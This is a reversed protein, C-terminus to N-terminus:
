FSKEIAPSAAFVSVAPKQVPIEGDQQLESPYFIYRIVEAIDDVAIVEVGINEFTEQWNEKPILVKNIGAQRAAEVKAAVGGVTKVKGRISIEGTLAIDSSM